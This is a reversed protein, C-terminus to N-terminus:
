RRDSHDDCGLTKVRLTKLGPKAQRRRIKLSEALKQSFGSRWKILRTEPAVLV